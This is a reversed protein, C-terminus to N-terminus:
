SLSYSSFHVVAKPCLHSCCSKLVFCSPSLLGEGSSHWMCCNSPCLKFYGGQIAGNMFRDEMVVRGIDM